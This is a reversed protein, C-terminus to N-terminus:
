HRITLLEGLAQEMGAAWFEYGAANLHLGDAGVLASSFNGEDDLFEPGLDLLHVFPLEDLDAIADNVANTKSRLHDDSAGRPWVSLLLIAAEPLRHHVEDVVARIGEAIEGADHSPLSINNAGILVVAVEPSIEDLRANQLRWLLHETRDSSIGLNIARRDGYYRDWVEKGEREFLHTLSDGLFLLQADPLAELQRNQERFREQWWDLRRPVPATAPNYETDVQEGNIIRLVNGAFYEGFDYDVHTLDAFSEADLEVVADSPIYEVGDSERILQLLEGRATAALSEIRADSVDPHYRGEVVVVRADADTFSRFAKELLLLNFEMPGADMSERLWAIQQDRSPREGPARPEMWRRTARWILEDVVGRLVFGYKSEPSLEGVLLEVLSATGGTMGPHARAISILDAVGGGQRPATSIAGEPTARCVELESLYLLITETGRGLIDHRYTYLDLPTMGAVIYTQLDERRDALRGYIRGTQSSGVALYQVGPAPRLFSDRERRIVDYQRWGVRQPELYRAYAHWVVPNEFMLIRLLMLLGLVSLTTRWAGAVKRSWYLLAAGAVLGLASFLWAAPEILSLELPPVTVM